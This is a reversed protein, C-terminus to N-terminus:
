ACRGAARPGSCCRAPFTSAATGMCGRPACSSPTLRPRFVAEEGALKSQGYYNLPRPEDTERYPDSKDGDFVFVTSVHVLKAGVEAAAEAVNQPALINGRDAYDHDTECRDVVAAAACNVILRPSLDTYLRM